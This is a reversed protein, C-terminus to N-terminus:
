KYKRAETSLDGLKVQLRKLAPLHKQSLLNM